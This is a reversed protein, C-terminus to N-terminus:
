FKSHTGDFKDLLSIQAQKPQPQTKSFCGLSTLVQNTQLHRISECWTQNEQQLNRLIVFFEEM